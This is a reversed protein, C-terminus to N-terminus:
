YIYLTNAKEGYRLEYLRNLDDDIGKELKYFSNWKKELKKELKEIKKQKKPDVVKETSQENFFSGNSITVHHHNNKDIYYRNYEVFCSDKFTPTLAKKNAYYKYLYSNTTLVSKISEIDGYNKLGDKTNLILMNPTIFLVTDDSNKVNNQYEIQSVTANQVSVVSDTQAIIPFFATGCEYYDIVMKISYFSLTYKDLMFYDSNQLDFEDSVEGVGTDFTWNSYDIYPDEVPLPYRSLCINDSYYICNDDGSYYDRNKYSFPFKQYDHANSCYQYNDYLSWPYSLYKLAYDHVIHQIDADMRLNVFQQFLSDSSINPNKSGAMPLAAYRIQAFYGIDKGEIPLKRWYSWYSRITNPLIYKSPKPEAIFVFGRVFYAHKLGYQDFASDEQTRIIYPDIYFTWHNVDKYYEKSAKVASDVKMVGADVGEYYLNDNQAFLANTGFLLIVIMILNSVIRIRKVTTKRM